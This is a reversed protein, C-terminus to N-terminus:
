VTYDPYASLDILTLTTLSGLAAIAANIEPIYSSISPANSSSSQNSSYWCGIAVAQGDIIMLCAFGSDNGIVPSYWETFEAESKTVLANFNLTLVEGIRLTRFQNTFAVPFRRTLMSDNTIKVPNGSASGGPYASLPLVKAPVVSVPLVLSLRSIFLDTNEIGVGGIIQRSYTQNGTDTFYITGSPRSHEAHILIDPTVLVGSSAVPVCSPDVETWLNPNRTYIRNNDDVSSFLDWTEFGPALADVDSVFEARVIETLSAPDPPDPNPPPAPPEAEM